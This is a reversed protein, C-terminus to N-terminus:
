FRGFYERALWEDRDAAAAHRAFEFRKVHVLWDVVQAGFAAVMREDGVLADLAEGLSAPLRAAADGYPSATAPPAALGRELGDLGAHIQAAVYLYPNAAPTGIRNEIRTAADGARGLVRLMAGRNDRGWTVANPAMAHPRFRAYADITPAAFVASAAAHALLGALWSEGVASLAHGADAASTGAAPADRRFANAGTKADVLSQHLHWGSAMVEAFPPRCVFSAHYGARRLAQTVGNRFAVMQDAATLADTADFVAEVQSPGLEIELSLLTLGLGEATRRVIRLPEDARDAWGEALLNYGPHIMTVAPVEGPWAARRPDLSPDDHPAAALRYIHFEVELGCKLGYGAAALRELARRLIFRTDIPVPTADDFWAEARLWGTNPAWPLLRFSAPDPLLLLNNAFGFGPLADVAGPEFVRYATRDSTDKLLITSVMGVGNDLTRALGAASLAKGRLIGHLDCWGVRVLDIGEDKVCRAIAEVAAARAADALGCAQAFNM